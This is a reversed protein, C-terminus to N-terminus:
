LVPLPHQQLARCNLFTHVGPLLHTRPAHESQPAAQPLSLLCLALVEHLWVAQMAASTTLAKQTISVYFHDHPKKREFVKM